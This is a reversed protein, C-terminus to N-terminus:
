AAISQIAPIVPSRKLVTGHGSRNERSLSRGLKRQGWWFFASRERIKERCEMFDHRRPEGVPLDSNKGAFLEPGETTLSRREEPNPTFLIIYVVLGAHVSISVRM